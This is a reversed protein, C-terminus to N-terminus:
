NSSLIEGYEKPTRGGLSSHKRYENYYINYKMLEEKLENEDNFVMPTNVDSTLLEEDITKWLREIKGNTQPHGPKTYRHKINLEKLLLEFPHQIIVEKNNSKNEKNEKNEKNKEKNSYTRRNNGFESGNDSLIEKFEINYVNKLFNIMELTKFMVTIAKIDKTLTLAMLRSADDMLGILYYRNTFTNNSITNNNFIINKPLYHCDIHGLDGINEKIIKKIERRSNGKMNNDLRNINNEKLIRYITSYSPILPKVIFSNSNNNNNSNNINNSNNTYYYRELESRISYVNLGYKSRLEKIKNVIEESFITRGISYKPGRKQPSLAKILLSKKNEKDNNSNNISNSNNTGNNTSNSNISNMAYCYRNYYKIFNQRKINYCKYFDNAFTFRPHKKQKTLLYEGILFEWQKLNNRELTTDKSNKIATKTM